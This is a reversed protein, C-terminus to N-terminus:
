QIRDRWYNPARRGHAVAIIEIASAGERFVIVYPFRSLVLRRLGSEVAMFQAPDNSIREIATSLEDLFRKAARESRSRYWDIAAEAEALAAPHISVPKPNM